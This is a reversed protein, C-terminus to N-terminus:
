CVPGSSFVRLELLYETTVYDAKRLSEKDSSSDGEAAMFHITLFIASL